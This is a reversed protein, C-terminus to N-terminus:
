VLRLAGKGFHEPRGLFRRRYMPISVSVFIM